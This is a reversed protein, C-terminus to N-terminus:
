LEPKLSLIMNQVRSIISFPLRYVRGPDKCHQDVNVNYDSMVKLWKALLVKDKCTEIRVLLQFGHGSPVEIPIIGRDLFLKRIQKYEDFSYADLDIALLNTSTVNEIRGSM